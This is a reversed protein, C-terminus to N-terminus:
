ALSLHLKDAIGLESATKFGAGLGKGVAIKYGKLRKGTYNDIKSFAQYPRPTGDDKVNFARDIGKGDAGNAVGEVTAPQM